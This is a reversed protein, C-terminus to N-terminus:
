GSVRRCLYDKSTHLNPVQSSRRRGSRIHSHIRQLV